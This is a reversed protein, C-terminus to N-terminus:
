GTQEQRRAGRADLRIFGQLVLLLAFAAASATFPAHLGLDDSIKGSLIPGLTTGTGEITLFFGWIAGRKEPPVAKAILTNWSPILFAFGLGLLGVLVYLLGLSEVRTFLFLVASTLMLGAILFRRFGWRDVMRGVPVMLLVAVGGGVLLFARFQSNSLMLENKAYLTLVPTLLGVAFTQIFMAPYLLRSVTVARKVEQFYRRIREGMPLHQRDPEGPAKAEGKKLKGPLFLAVLVVLFILGIMLRFALATDHLFFTIAFPGLGVGSLWAIYVVSMVTGSDKDGAIETAGTIVCPWLPATGIGLLACAAVIWLFSSSAAIIIVAVLTSCVGILMSYRYGVRDIFWGIPTRLLNDGIYQVALTWGVVLTSAHLTNTLYLPLFTVILAGKVFQVSFMIVLLQIVFKSAFVGRNIKKREKSGM